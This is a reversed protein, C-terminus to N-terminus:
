CTRTRAPKQCPLADLEALDGSWRLSAGAWLLCTVLSATAACLPPPSCALLFLTECILRLHGLVHLRHTTPLWGEGSVLGLPAPIRSAGLACPGSGDLFASSTPPCSCAAGLSAVEECDYGNSPLDTTGRFRSM